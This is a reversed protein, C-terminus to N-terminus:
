APDHRRRQLPQHARDREPVQRDDNGGILRRQSLSLIIRGACGFLMPEFATDNAPRTGLASNALVRHEADESASQMDRDCTLLVEFGGAAALGLLVGNKVSAWGM